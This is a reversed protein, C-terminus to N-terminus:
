RPSSTTPRPKSPKRTSRIKSTVQFTLTNAAADYNVTENGATIAPNAQFVVQVNGANGPNVAQFLLESNAQTAATGGTM